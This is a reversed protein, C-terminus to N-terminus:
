SEPQDNRPCTASHTFGYPFIGCICSLQTTPGQYQDRRPCIGISIYGCVYTYTLHSGVVQLNVACLELWKVM